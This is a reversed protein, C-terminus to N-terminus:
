LKQLVLYVMPLSIHITLQMSTESRDISDVVVGFGSFIAEISQYGTITADINSTKRLKSYAARASSDLHTNIM